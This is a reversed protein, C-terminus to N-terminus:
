DLLKKLRQALLPLNVQAIDWIMEDDIVDYGHIIRNRLGIVEWLEPIDLELDAHEQSARKLAEGIIEFHREVTCRLSLDDFYSERVVGELVQFIIEAAKLADDLYKKTRHTM